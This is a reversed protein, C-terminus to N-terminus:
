EHLFRLFPKIETFCLADYEHWTAPFRRSAIMKSCQKFLGEHFRLKFQDEVVVHGIQARPQETLRLVTLTVGVRLVVLDKASVSSCKYAINRMQLICRAM